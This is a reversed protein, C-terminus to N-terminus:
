SGAPKWTTLVRMYNARALSEPDPCHLIDMSGRMQRLSDYHREEMWAAVEGRLRDLHGAGERMLASVMQVASAGAMIAKIADLATHVGGTVALSAWRLRGSLVALWRLRLLLEESSSLKLSPHLDLNEVDIDTEFFRNFLILGDAGAEELRHALHPLSTYFPSLKVAVPIAVAARVEHVMAVARDEIVDSSEHEDTAVYYLNLELADAGAQALSRAHSLWGGPTYGNLSAFVPIRLAAKLRHLNELYEDPGIVFDVPDPFYSLAEGFSEAHMEISRQTALAERDIQEEFLSRM